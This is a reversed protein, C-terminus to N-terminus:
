AAVKFIELTLMGYANKVSLMYGGDLNWATDLTDVGDTSDVIHNNVDAEGLEESIKKVWGDFDNKDAYAVIMNVKGDEYSASAKSNVGYLEMEYERAIVNGTDDKTATGEGMAAALEADTKGMLGILMAAQGKAVPKEAPVEPVEPSASNQSENPLPTPEAKKSSCGTFLMVAVISLTLVTINTRKKM